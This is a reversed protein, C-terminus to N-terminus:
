AQGVFIKLGSMIYRWKPIEVKKTFINIERSIIKRQDNQAYKGNHWQAAVRAIKFDKNTIILM